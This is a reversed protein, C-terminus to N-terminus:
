RKGGEEDNPFAERVVAGVYELAHWFDLIQIAKPFRTEALKWLWVAGDGLVVLCKAM